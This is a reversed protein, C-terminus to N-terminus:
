ARGKRAAAIKAYAANLRQSLEKGADVLSADVGAARLRDPHATKLRALYASRVIEWPADATVGLVEYPDSSWADAPRRFGMDASRVGPDPKEEASGSTQKMPRQRLELIRSKAIARFGDAAEVPLFAREDNLLDSVRGGRAVFVACDLTESESLAISVPIKVREVRRASTDFM